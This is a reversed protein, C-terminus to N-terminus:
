RTRAGKNPYGRHDKQDCASMAYTPSEKMQKRNDGKYFSAVESNTLNGYVRSFPKM